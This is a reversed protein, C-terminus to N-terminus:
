DYGVLPDCVNRVIDNGNVEAIQAPDFTILADLNWAMVLADKPTAAQAAGALLLLAGAAGARLMMAMGAGWTRSRAKRRGIGRGYGAPGHCVLAPNPQM